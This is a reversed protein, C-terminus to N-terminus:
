HIVICNKGNRKATAAGMDARGIMSSAEDDAQWQTIGASFQLVLDQKDLKLRSNFLAKQLRSVTLFAHEIATDPLVILFEEGGLRAFIDTTRLMSSIVQTLHVLANDGAAHGFEDNVRKFNDVDLMVACLPKNHRRARSLERAFAAECGRRNLIGTLQDEHALKSMQELKEELNRIYNQASHLLLNSVTASYLAAPVAANCRSAAEFYDHSSFSEPVSINM